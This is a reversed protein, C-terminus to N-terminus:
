LCLMIAMIYIEEKSGDISRAVKGIWKKNMREEEVEGM